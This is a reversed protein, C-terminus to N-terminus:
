QWNKDVVESHETSKTGINTAPPLQQLPATEGQKPQNQLVPTSPQTQQEADSISIVRAIEMEGKEQQLSHLEKQLKRIAIEITNQKDQKRGTLIHAAVTGPLSQTIRQETEGPLKATQHPPTEPVEVVEHLAIIEGGVNIWSLEQHKAHNSQNKLAPVYASTTSGSTGKLSGKQNGKSGEM